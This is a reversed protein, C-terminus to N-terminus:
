TSIRLLPDILTGGNVNISTFGSVFNGSGLEFAVTGNNTASGFNLSGLTAGAPNLTLTVGSAAQFNVAAQPSTFTNSMSVTSTALIVGTNLTTGGTYNNSGSLTLLGTGNMVLAGSGSIAANLTLNHVGNPDDQITLAKGSNLSILTSLSRDSSDAYLSTNASVTVAGTGLAANNGAGVTGGGLTTGGTYTNSGRLIVTNGTTILRGSGTISGSFTASTLTFTEGATSGCDLTGLGTLNNITTSYGNLKFAASSAIVVSYSQLTQSLADAGDLLTGGNVNITGGFFIFNGPEFNVTGTNTASGFNLTGFQATSSDVNLTMNPAAQFSVASGITPLSNTMTLTTTAAITGTNFTIPATGFSTGSAINVLGGNLTTGGSYSNAASLNVTGPFNNILAGPGSIAGLLTLAGAGTGTIQTANNLIISNSVSSTNPSNQVIAPMSSTTSNTFELGSGLLVFSSAGTQFHLGNLIFPSAIDQITTTNVSGTFSVTTDQNSLPSASSSSGATHGWNAGNSWVASTSGNWLWTDARAHSAAAACYAAAALAAALRARSKISSRTPKTAPGM